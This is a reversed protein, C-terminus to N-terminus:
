PQSAGCRQRTREAMFDLIARSIAAGVEEPPRTADIIRGNRLNRVLELYAARQRTTEAPAVEQKRSRLVEAPADLLVVLDPQKLLLYGLGVLFRPVCLRYRKQDVFFDYYFRDILVLGGRFAMPRLRLHSGLFFELWHFGFYALSLVLNRAPQGHPDTAPGRAARRKSSFLPPKWHFHHVKPSSFTVSLGGTVAAAATSKGSGDAGCLVVSVGPPRLFRRTLRSADLLLSHLTRWPHRTLQRLVM